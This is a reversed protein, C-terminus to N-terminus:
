RVVVKLGFSRLLAAVQQMRDPGPPELDTLGYSGGIRAYKSKGLRHFPLLTVCTVSRVAKVLSATARINQEDDNIGPVVPIRIDLPTGRDGIRVLNELILRNSLGTYRRHADPDAHKVDYLVLDTFPLVTEFDEWRACGSTDLTTHIGEARCRELVAASFEVQCMPEGGSLTIGGGSNRYFPLDKRLECMADEVTLPRGELVLAEAVCGEACRGCGTCRERHFARSGDALSEHAGNPCLTVCRGCAICKEEFIALQPGSSISEPNHCWWCALPCGKLFLTTRIGPGDHVAFRQIDFILGSKEM